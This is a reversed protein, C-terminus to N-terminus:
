YALLFSVAATAVRNEKSMRHCRNEVRIRRCCARKIFNQSKIISLSKEVELPDFAGVTYIENGVFKKERYKISDLLAKQWIQQLM